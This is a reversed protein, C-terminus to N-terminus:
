EEDRKKKYQRQATDYLDQARLWGPSGEKLLHMAKKSQGMADRPEGTLLNQEALALSAMGIQGDRGYAIASLQWALPM